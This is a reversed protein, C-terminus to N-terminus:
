KGTFNHVKEVLRDFQRELEKAKESTYPNIDYKSYIMQKKDDFERLEKEGYNEYIKTGPKPNLLKEELATLSHKLGGIQRNQITKLDM